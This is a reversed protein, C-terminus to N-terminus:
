TKQNKGGGHRVDDGTTAFIVDEAINTAHDGMRELNRTILILNLAAEIHDPDNKMQETLTKVMSNKLEDVADDSELVKRALNLDSNVFADLASRVMERVLSTMLPLRQASDVPGHRLYHEANKALNVAQDGMRELDTNIKIIALILRLDAAVPAQRALIGLCTNDVDIHAQNIKTEIAHVENLKAKNRELLAQIAREMAQEVFGAMSLIRNKVDKLETEFRREM